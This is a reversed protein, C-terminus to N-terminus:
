WCQIAIEPARSFIMIPDSLAYRGLDSAVTREVREMQRPNKTKDVLHLTRRLLRGHCSRTSKGAPM